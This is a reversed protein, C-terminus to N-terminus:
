NETADNANVFCTQPSKKKAEANNKSTPLMVEARDGLLTPAM